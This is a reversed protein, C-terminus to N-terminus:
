EVNDSGALSPLTFVQDVVSAAELVVERYRKRSETGEGRWYKVRGGIPLGIWSAVGDVGTVRERLRGSYIVGQDSSPEEITQLTVTVGVAPEGDDDLVLVVATCLSPDDPVPIAPLAVLDMAVATGGAEVTIDRIDSQYVGQKSTRLEWQDAAVLMTVIHGGDAGTTLRYDQLAGTHRDHIAVRTGAAVPEGGSTVTITVPESM